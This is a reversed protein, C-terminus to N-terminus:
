EGSVISKKGNDNDDDDVNFDYDKEYLISFQKSNRMNPTNTQNKLYRGYYYYYYYGFAQYINNPSIIITHTHINYAILNIEQKGDGIRIFSGVILLLWYYGSPKKFLSDDYKTEARIQRNDNHKKKKIMLFM